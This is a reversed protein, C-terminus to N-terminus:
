RDSELEDWLMQAMEAANQDNVQEVRVPAPRDSLEARRNGKAPTEFELQVCGAACTFLLLLWRKM